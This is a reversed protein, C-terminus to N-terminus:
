PAGVPSVWMGPSTGLKIDIETPPIFRNKIFITQGEIGWKWDTWMSGNTHAIWMRGPEWFYLMRGKNPGYVSEWITGSMNFPKGGDRTEKEPEQPQDSLEAIKEKVAMASELRGAKTERELVQKLYGTVDERKQAIIKEVNERQAAEFKELKTITNAVDAPLKPTDDSM